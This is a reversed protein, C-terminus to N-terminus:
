AAKQSLTLKIENKRDTISEEWDFPFRRVEDYNAGWVTKLGVMDVVSDLEEQIRAYAERCQAKPLRFSKIFKEHVGILKRMSDDTFGSAYLKGGSERPPKLEVWPAKLSYLYRGVGWAVGARKLADSIGGKEKEVATDGAGDAKWVWTDGVRIGIECIVRGSVSPFRNQWNEPGCVEDLRDHVDRADIYALAMGKKKDRTTSGVRWHVATSSFPAKLDALNM